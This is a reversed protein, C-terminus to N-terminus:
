ESASESVTHRLSEMNRVCDRDGDRKKTPSIEIEIEMERKHTKWLRFDARCENQLLHLSESWHSAGHKLTKWVSIQMANM